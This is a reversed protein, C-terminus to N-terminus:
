GLKMGPINPMMGGKGGMGFGRKKKMSKFYKRMMNYTKLLEKIDAEDTGSGRAIRLVRPHNLLKPDEKESKTMSDMIVKFKNLREESIDGMNKPVKPGLGPIMSILQKIPGMKKVAELQDYVDTLTIKGAMIRDMQKKEFQDEIAAEKFTSILTDLDGKGILRGVFKPPDYKELNDIKEGTGLFKIPAGTEAVASIAGGGKTSGDLKTILISGVDTAQRFASAQESCQQGITGDIVLVIEHPRIKKSIKTIERMLSKEEKHRGATDVIIMDYKDKQFQSVGEKAVKIASDAKEDGYISFHYQDALQKLQDYAGPRYTDACVLATKFGKKQFFRALKVTSTTKGSGEIGVMLIITSKGTPATNIDYVADGLIRTIEEYVINVVHNKKTVGKPPKEKIARKEITKTLEFVLKVNVDSSLLTRQIDKVLERIAKKDVLGMGTLKKLADYLGRGLKGLVM